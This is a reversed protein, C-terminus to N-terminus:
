LNGGRELFTRFEENYEGAAELLPQTKRVKLNRSYLKFLILHGNLFNNEKYSTHKSKLSLIIIKFVYFHKYGRTKLYLWRAKNFSGRCGRRMLSFGLRQKRGSKFIICGESALNFHIGKGKTLDTCPFCFSLSSTLLLLIHGLSGSICHAVWKTRRM